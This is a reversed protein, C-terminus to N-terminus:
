SNLDPSIVSELEETEWTALSNMHDETADNSSKSSKNSINQRALNYVPFSCPRGTKHRFPLGRHSPPKLRHYDRSPRITFQNQLSPATAPGNPPSSGNKVSGESVTPSSGRSM